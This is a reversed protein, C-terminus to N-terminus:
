GNILGILPMKQMEADFKHEGPYFKGSYRDSANAKAFVEQLIEDAQQMEPLTYLQDERDFLVMTPLPVRIGLIEPFDLYRPLLPAYVMWTHTYSKNLLFDKWTSMFGVSVACAIRHDLGALYDTRLGGGSLGCCGVRSADVEARACLIDLAKQDEAFTVGPWTTGGCFLSKSM